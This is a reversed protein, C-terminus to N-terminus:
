GPGYAFPKRGVYPAGVHRRPGRTWWGAPAGVSPPAIPVAQGSGSESDFVFLETDGSSEIEDRIAKSLIICGQSPNGTRSGGHILFGSRGGMDNASDPALPLNDLITIGDSKTSRRKGITYRGRPIPGQNKVHQSDPNDRHDGRAGSFGTGKLVPDFADTSPNDWWTQGTSQDYYWALGAPDLRSLPNSECYTYWNRGDRIPDRTLFRGLSPDYYRNWNYYLGTESDAVM